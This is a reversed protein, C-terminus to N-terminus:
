RITGRIEGGPFALTHVNTYAEGSRIKAILEALNAVGGPCTASSARPIVDEATITGEALIGNETVGVPNFGFLFVIVPGAVDPTGCHIHAQTVDDINAVILRYTISSEDASIEYRANGAANTDVPVPREDAGHLPSGFRSEQGALVPFAAFALVFLALGMRISTSRFM